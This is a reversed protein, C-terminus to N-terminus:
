SLPAAQPFDNQSPQENNGVGELSRAVESADQVVAEGAGVVEGDAGGRSKKARPKKAASTKAAPKKGWNGGMMGDEKQIKKCKLSAQKKQMDAVIEIKFNNVIQQGNIVRVVPKALKVRNAKYDYLTKDSGSTTERISFTIRRITKYKQSAKAKKFLRSAAKKAASAPTASKYRGGSTNICSSVVTFTRSM